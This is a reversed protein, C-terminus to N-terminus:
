LFNELLYTSRNKNSASLVARGHRFLSRTEVRWRMNSGGQLCGYGMVLNGTARRSTVAVSRDTKHWMLMVLRTGGAQGVKGRLEPSCSVSTVKQVGPYMKELMDHVLEPKKSHEERPAVIVSSVKNEPKPM